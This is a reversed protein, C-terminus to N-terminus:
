RQISFFPYMHHSPESKHNSRDPLGRESTDGCEMYSTMIEFKASPLMPSPPVTLRHAMRRQIRERVSSLVVLLVVQIGGSSYMGLRCTSHVPVHPSPPQTRCAAIDISASHCLLIIRVPVLVVTTSSQTLLHHTPLPSSLVLCVLSQLRLDDDFIRFAGCFRERTQPEASSEPVGVLM